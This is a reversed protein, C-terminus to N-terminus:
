IKPSAGTDPPSPPPSFFLSFLILLLVTGKNQVARVEKVHEEDKFPSSNSGSLAHLCLCQTLWSRKVCLQTDYSDHFCHDYKNKILNCVQM